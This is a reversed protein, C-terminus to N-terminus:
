KLRANIVGELFRNWVGVRLDWSYFRNTYDIQFQLHNKVTEQNLQNAAADIVSAFTHALRIFDKEYTLDSPRLIYNLYARTLRKIDRSKKITSEEM